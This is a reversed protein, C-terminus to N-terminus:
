ADGFGFNLTLYCAATTAFPSATVLVWAGNTPGLPVGAVQNGACDWLYATYSGLSPFVGVVDVTKMYFSFNSVNTQSGSSNWCLPVKVVGNDGNQTSWIHFTLSHSGTHAQATTVNM